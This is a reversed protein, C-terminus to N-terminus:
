TVSGNAQLMTDSDWPDFPELRRMNPEPRVFTSAEENLMAAVMSFTSNSIALLDSHALVYFDFYM